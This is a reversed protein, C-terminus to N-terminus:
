DFIYGHIRTLNCLYHHINVMATHIDHWPMRPACNKNILEMDYQSVLLM